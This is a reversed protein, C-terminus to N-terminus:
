DSDDCDHRYTADILQYDRGERVHVTGKKGEAALWENVENEDGETLEGANIRRLSPCALIFDKLHQVLATRLVISLNPNDIFM